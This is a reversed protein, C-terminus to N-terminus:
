DSIIVILGGCGHSLVQLGAARQCAPLAVVCGMLGPLGSALINSGRSQGGEHTRLFIIYALLTQEHTGAVNCM